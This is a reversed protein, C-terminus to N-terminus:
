VGTLAAMTSSLANLKNYLDKIVANPDAKGSVTTTCTNEAKDTYSSLCNVGPIAPINRIKKAPYQSIDDWMWYGTSIFEGTELDHQLWEGVGGVFLLGTEWDYTNESEFAYIPLDVTYTKSEKPPEYATPTTGIELQPYFTVPNGDFTTLVTISPTISKTNNPAVKTLSDARNGRLWNWNQTNDDCFLHIALYVGEGVNNNVVLQKGRLYSSPVYEALEFMTNTTPTGSITVSGDSNLVFTTGNETNTRPETKPILNKGGHYLNLKGPAENGSYVTKVGLPYGEVPVCTVASGSEEFSPYLKDLIANQDEQTWYDTGRVPTDGKEGQEGKEGREGREGNTVTYTQTNGDLFTITYTDVLGETGTKEISAINHKTSETLTNKVEEVFAGNEARVNAVEAIIQDYVDPTPDSPRMDSTIAGKKVKYRVVNSTRRIGNKEGFVGFYFTGEDFCVEWPVVCTDNEDLIAYYVDEENRYFIATKVFGAWKECFNFVIRVENLGGAALVPSETIKLLQDNCSVKIESKVM